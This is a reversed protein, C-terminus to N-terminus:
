VKRGNELKKKGELSEGVLGYLYVHTDASGILNSLGFFAAFSLCFLVVPGLFVWRLEEGGAMWQWGDGELAM